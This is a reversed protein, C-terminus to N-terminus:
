GWTTHELSIYKSGLSGLLSLSFMPARLLCSALYPFLIILVSLVLVIAVALTPFRGVHNSDPDVYTKTRKKVFTQLM